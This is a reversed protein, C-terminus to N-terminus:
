KPKVIQKRTSKYPFNKRTRKTLQLEIKLHHVIEGSRFTPNKKFYSNGNFNRVIVFLYDLQALQQRRLFLFLFLFQALRENTVFGGEWSLCTRGDLELLKNLIISFICIIKCFFNVFQQHPSHNNTFSFIIKIIPSFLFQYFTTQM